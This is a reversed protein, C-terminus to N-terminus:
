PVSDRVWLFFDAKGDSAQQNFATWPVLQQKNPSDNPVCFCLMEKLALDQSVAVMSYLTVERRVQKTVGIFNNHTNYNKKQFNSLINM